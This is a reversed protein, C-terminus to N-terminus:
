AGGRFSAGGSLKTSNSGCCAAPTCACLAGFLPVTGALYSIYGILTTILTAYQESCQCLRNDRVCTDIYKDETATMKYGEERLSNRITDRKGLEFCRM